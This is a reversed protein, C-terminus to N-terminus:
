EAENSLNYFSNVVGCFSVVGFKSTRFQFDSSRISLIRWWNNTQRNKQFTDEKHKLDLETESAPHWPDPTVLVSSIRPLSTGPKLVDVQSVSSKM